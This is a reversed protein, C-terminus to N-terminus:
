GSQNHTLVMAGARQLIEFRGCSWRTGLWQIAQMYSRGIVIACKGVEGVLGGVLAVLAVGGIM